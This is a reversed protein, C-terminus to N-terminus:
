RPRAIQDENGPEYGDRRREDARKSHDTKGDEQDRAYVIRCHGIPRIDHIKPLPAPTIMEREDSVVPVDDHPDSGAPSASCGKLSGDSGKHGRVKITAKEAPSATIM